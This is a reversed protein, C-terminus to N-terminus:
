RWNEEKWKKWERDQKSWKKCDSYVRFIFPIMFIIVIVLSVTSCDM